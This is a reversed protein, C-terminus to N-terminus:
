RIANLAENDLLIRVEYKTNVTHNRLDQNAAANVAFDGKNNQIFGDCVQGIFEFLVNLLSSGCGISDQDGMLRVGLGLQFRRARACWKEATEGSAVLGDFRGEFCPKTSFEICAEMMKWFKLCWGVGSHSIKYERILSLKPLM